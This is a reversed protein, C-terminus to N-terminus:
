LAALGFERSHRLAHAEAFSGPAAAIACRRGYGHYAFEDISVVSAPMDIRKLSTCGHFAGSGIHRITEPLHVATIRRKNRFASNCITVVTHGDLERPIQVTQADGEYRLLKATQNNLFEYVFPSNM